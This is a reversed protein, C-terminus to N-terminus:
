WPLPKRRPVGEDRVSRQRRLGANGARLVSRPQEGHHPCTASHRWIAQLSHGSRDAPTQDLVGLDLEARDGRVDEPDGTSLHQGRQDGALVVRLREGMQGPGPHAGLDAAPLPTRRASWRGGRRGGACWAPASRRSWRRCRRRDLGLDLLQDGKRGLRRAVRHSERLRRPRPVRSSRSIPSSIDRNGV